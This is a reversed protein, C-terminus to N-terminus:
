GGPNKLDFYSVRGLTDLSACWSSTPCSVDAFGGGSVDLGFQGTWTQGDFIWDAGDNVLGEGVAV